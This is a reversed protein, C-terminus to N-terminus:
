WKIEKPCNNSTEKLEKVLWIIFAEIKERLKNLTKM